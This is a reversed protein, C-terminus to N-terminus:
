LFSFSVTLNISGRSNRSPPPSNLAAISTDVGYANAQERWYRTGQGQNQWDYTGDARLYCNTRRWKLKIGGAEGEAGAEIQMRFSSLGIGQPGGFADVERSFLLDAIADVIETNWHRAIYNGHMGTSAGINDIRQAEENFEVTFALPEAAELALCMLWTVCYVVNKKLM